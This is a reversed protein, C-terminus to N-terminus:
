HIGMPVRSGAAAATAKDIEQLVARHSAREEETQLSHPTWPEMKVMGFSVTPVAVRSPAGQAARHPAARLM